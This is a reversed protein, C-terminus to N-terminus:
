VMMPNLYQQPLSNLFSGAAGSLPLGLYHGPKSDLAVCVDKTNDDVFILYKKTTSKHIIYDYLCTVDRDRRTIDSCSCM